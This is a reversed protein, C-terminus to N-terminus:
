KRFYLTSGNFMENNGMFNFPCFFEQNIIFQAKSFNCFFKVVTIHGM